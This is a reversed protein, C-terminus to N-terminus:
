LIPGSVSNSGAKKPIRYRRAKKAIGEQLKVNSNAKPTATHGRGDGNKPEHLQARANVPSESEVTPREAELEVLAWLAAKKEAVRQDATRKAEAERAMLGALEEREAEKKANAAAAKWAVKRQHKKRPEIPHMEGHLDDEYFRAAAEYRRALAACEVEEELRRAADYAEANAIDAEVDEEEGDAILGDIDLQDREEGEELDGDGDSEGLDVEYDEEEDEGERAYLALFHSM